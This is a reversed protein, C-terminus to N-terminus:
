RWGLLEPYYVQMARVPDAYGMARLTQEADSRMAEGEDGSILVGLAYRERMSESPRDCGAFLESSQRSLQIAQAKDGRLAAIRARLHAVCAQSSPLATKTIGRVDDHVLSEPDGAGRQMAFRNLRLRARLTHTVMALTANRRM